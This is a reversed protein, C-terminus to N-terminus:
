EVAGAVMGTQPTVRGLMQRLWQPHVSADADTIFVWEGTARTFGHAIGRAKAELGNRPLAAADMAVVRSDEAAAAAIIEGTRDDSHDNVLVIQLKGAPYDLARLAAICRPFDREENRASVIVTVPVCDADPLRTSRALRRLGLILVAMMPFYALLMAALLWKAWPISVTLLMLPLFNCM